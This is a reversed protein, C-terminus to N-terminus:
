SLDRKEVFRGIETLREEPCAVFNGDFKEASVDLERLWGDADIAFWKYGRQALHEIIEKAAYGWPGTRLDQVEAFIVPRPQRGLLKEAGRLVDREGGEVDLKIFDVRAIGNEELWDDLRAVAVSLPSAGSAAIPPRLSNCGDEGGNVLFLEAQERERGLACAEIRVNSCFNIKLNRSLQARERPSPEFAVVRGAAGVRKSALLTYLGHHAGIDLVTMGARLFKEVFFIEAREFVGWLLGHDVESTGVLFWAGFPLRVPIPMSPFIRRFRLAMAAYKENAPRTAFKRVREAASLETSM